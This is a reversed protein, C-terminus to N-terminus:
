NRFTFILMFKHVEIAFQNRSKQSLNPALGRYLAVLFEEYSKVNRLHSLANKVMATKSISIEVVGKTRIWDLCRSSM